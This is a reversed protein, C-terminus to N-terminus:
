LGRVDYSLPFHATKYQSVFIYHNDTIVIAILGAQVLNQMMKVGTQLLANNM